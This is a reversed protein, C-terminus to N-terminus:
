TGRREALTRAVAPHVVEGGHTVLVSRVIEDDRDLVLAGEKVIELALNMVNRAYMESAHAPVLAPLNEEGLITVGHHVVARGRESLECNGGTAVALDVIVAGPRMERVMENTLLRPAPRGPIVAASIIVDAESVEKRLRERQENLSDGAPGASAGGSPGPPLEEIFRGGLSEVEEKVEPRIDAVSVVAGLRRATALAQLGIVGAGLILVRAPPLTGAATMMLPFLRPLANAALLVAKYGAVTAQSSLADMKQARTIRPIADMALASIERECLREILDPYLSPYLFSVIAAGRRMWGIEEATAPLVKLVLASDGYASPADAAIVAGAEKFASDAILAAQGAGQGVRVALGAKALRRVTEPTAAVRTEGPRTERPVFVQLM